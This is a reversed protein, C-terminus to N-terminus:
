LCRVRACVEALDRPILLECILPDNPRMVRRVAHVQEVIRRRIERGTQKRRDSGHSWGCGHVMDWTTASAGDLALSSLISVYILLLSRYPSTHIDANRTTRRTDYSFLIPHTNNMLHHCQENENTRENSLIYQAFPKNMTSKLGEACRKPEGKRSVARLSMRSFPIGCGHCIRRVVAKLTFSSTQSYLIRRCGFVILCPQYIWVTAVLTQFFIVLLVSPICVM